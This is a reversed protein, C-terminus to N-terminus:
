TAVAFFDTQQVIQGEADTQVNGDEDRTLITVVVESPTFTMEAVDEYTLGLRSIIERLPEAINIRNDLTVSM